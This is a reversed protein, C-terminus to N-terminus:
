VMLTSHPREFRPSIRKRYQGRSRDLRRTQRECRADRGWHQEHPRSLVDSQVHRESGIRLCPRQQLFLSRDAFSVESVTSAPLQGYYQMTWQGWVWNGTANKSQTITWLGGNNAAVASLVMGGSANTVISLQAAGASLNWGNAPVCLDNWGAPHDFDMEHIQNNADLVFLQLDGHADREAVLSTINLGNPKGLFNWGTLAAANVAGFVYNDWLGGDAGIAFVDHAGNSRTTVTVNKLNGPVPAVYTLLM